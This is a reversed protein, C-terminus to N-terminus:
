ACAFGKEEAKKIEPGLAEVNCLGDDEGELVFNLMRRLLATMIEGLRDGDITGLTANKVAQFELPLSQVTPLLPADFYALHTTGEVSLRLSPGRLNPWAVVWSPTYEDTAPTGVLVVPKETGKAVVDGIIHGDYNLCGLVRDDAYATAVATAGGFSHGVAVIRNSDIAANTGALLPGTVSSSTFQDIVFIMDEQRAKILLNVYNEDNNTPDQVYAVAGDPFEVVAADYTHDPAVVIYGYSAFSRALVSYASRVAARGHSFVVLPYKTKSTCTAGTSCFEIELGQFVTDPLGLQKTMQGIVTATLPPIYPVTDVTCSADKKIPVFVSVLLRRKEPQDAPAFPDWRKEDVFTHTKLAVSYPGSPGPIVAAM